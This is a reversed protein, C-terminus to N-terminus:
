WLDRNTELVALFKKVGAADIYGSEFKCDEIVIELLTSFEESRFRCSIENNLVTTDLNFDFYFVQGNNDCWVYAECDGYPPDLSIYFMSGLPTECMKDALNHTILGKATGDHRIPIDGDFKLVTMIAALNKEATAEYTNSITFGEQDQMSIWEDFTSELDDEEWILIGEQKITITGDTLTVNRTPGSTNGDSYFKGETNSVVTITRM